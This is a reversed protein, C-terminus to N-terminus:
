RMIKLTHGTDADTTFNVKTPLQTPQPAIGDGVRVCLVHNRKMNIVQRDAGAHGMNSLRTIVNMPM